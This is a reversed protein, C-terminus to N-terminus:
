PTSNLSWTLKAKYVTGKKGANAPVNLSLNNFPMRLQWTGDGESAGADVLTKAADGAVLTETTKVTSPTGSPSPDIGEQPTDRNTVKEIFMNDLKLSTGSGNPMGSGAKDVFESLSATLEWGTNSSREDKVRTYFGDTGVNTNSQYDLSHLSYTQLTSHIDQTGFNFYIPVSLIGMDQSDKPTDTQEDDFIKFQQKSENSHPSSPTTDSWDLRGVAEYWSDPDGRAISKFTIVISEGEDLDGLSTTGNLHNMDGPVSSAGKTIVIDSIDGTIYNPLTLTM